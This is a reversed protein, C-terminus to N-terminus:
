SLNRKLEKLDFKGVIGCDLDKSSAEVTRKIRQPTVQTPFIESLVCALGGTVTAASYSTGPELKAETGHTDVIPLHGPAVIEPITDEWEVNGDWYKIRRNNECSHMPSCGNYGCYTEDPYYQYGSQRKAYYAGPPRSELSDVGIPMSQNSPSAECISESMGVAISNSSKAPCFVGLSKGEKTNGAGAVIVTGERVLEDIASSLRCKGSCNKHHKGASINVLDIDKNRISDLAKLLNSPKFKKDTAVVRFFNYVAEPAFEQIFYLVKSGHGTTDREGSAVYNEQYETNIGM